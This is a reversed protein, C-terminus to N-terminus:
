TVLKPLEISVRLGPEAREAWIKGHHLLVAREAISLGLGVGGAHPRRDSDVRFFPRFLSPLYEAAVGPGRDRITILTAEPQTLCIEVATGEPAFRIANRLVNEIARRLLEWDGVLPASTVASAFDVRCGKSELEIRCDSVVSQVLRGVDFEDLNREAPDGESQIMHLLEGVLVSL